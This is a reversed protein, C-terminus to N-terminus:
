IRRVFSLSYPNFIGFYNNTTKWYHLLLRVPTMTATSHNAKKNTPRCAELEKTSKPFAFTPLWVDDKGVSSSGRGRPWSWVSRWQFISCSSLTRRHSMINCCKPISQCYLRALIGRKGAPLSTREMCGQRSTFPPKKSAPFAGPFDRARAWQCLKRWWPPWEREQLLYQPEVTWESLKLIM